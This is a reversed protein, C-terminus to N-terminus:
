ITLFAHPRIWRSWIQFHAIVPFKLIILSANEGEVSLSVFYPQLMRSWISIRVNLTLLMLVSLLKLYWSLIACIQLVRERKLYTVITVCKATVPGLVFSVGAFDTVKFDQPEWVDPRMSSIDVAPFNAAFRASSENKLSSFLILTM